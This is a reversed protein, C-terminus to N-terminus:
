RSQPVVTHGVIFEVIKTLREGLGSVDHLPVMGMDPLHAALDEGNATEAGIAVGGKNEFGRFQIIVKETFVGTVSGCGIEGGAAHLPYLM